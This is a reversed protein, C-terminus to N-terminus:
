IYIGNQYEINYKKLTDKRVNYNTETNLRSLVEARQRKYKAEPNSRRKKAKEKIEVKHKEYYKKTSEKRIEKREEQSRGMINKNINGILRIIEGEKQELEERDNCPYKCYLDIYWDNWDEIHNYLSIKLGKKWDRKHNSLRQSLSQITSGVFILTEDNKNRITYIKGTSFDKTKNMKTKINITKKHKYINFSKLFFVINSKKILHKQYIKM